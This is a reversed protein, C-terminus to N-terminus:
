KFHIMLKDIHIVLKAQISVLDSVAFAAAGKSVNIPVALLSVNVAAVPVSCSSSVMM